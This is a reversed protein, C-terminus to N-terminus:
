TGSPPPPPTSPALAARKKAVEDRMPQLSADLAAAEHELRVADAQLDHLEKALAEVTEGRAAVIAAKAKALEKRASLLAEELETM